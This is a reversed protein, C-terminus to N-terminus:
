PTGFTKTARARVSEPITIGLKKATDLNLFIEDGQLVVVTISKEGKLVRAVLDGTAKGVGEYGVSVAALGGKEVTGSDGVFLAKKANLCAKLAAPLGQIVTNDSSLYVADVKGITVNLAGYIENTNSVNIDVVEFGLSPAIARIQKIGYQSAAEGPNYLVGLKKANPLIDRALQLQERYPWADSVGTINPVAKDLAPIVGAGVPDTVASFVVPKRAEKAAAQAIPTTVAVIVDAGQLEVERIMASGLNADGNANKEVFAITKGTEYGKAALEKKMAAVVTDLAPHTMLNAIGVKPVKPPPPTSTATQQQETRQCSAVSLAFAILLTALLRPSQRVKM